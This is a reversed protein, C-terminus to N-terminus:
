SIPKGLEGLSSIAAVDSHAMEDPCNPHALPAIPHGSLNALLVVIFLVAFLGSGVLRARSSQLRVKTQPAVLHTVRESVHNFGGVALATVLRQSPAQWLKLLARALPAREGMTQVTEADAAVERALEYGRVLDRALPFFFLGRALARGM